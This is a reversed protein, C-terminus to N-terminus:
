GPLGAPTRLAFREVLRGVITNPPMIVAIMVTNATAEAVSAPAGITDPDIPVLVVLVLAVLVVLVVLVILVILVVVAVLEVLV